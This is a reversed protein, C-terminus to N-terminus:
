TEHARLHTYSVAKLIDSKKSASMFTKFEEIFVAPESSFSTQAKIATVLLILLVTLIRKLM